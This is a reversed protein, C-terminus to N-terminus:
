KIHSICSKEKKKIKIKISTWLLQPLKKECTLVMNLKEFSNRSPYKRKTKVNLKEIYENLISQM